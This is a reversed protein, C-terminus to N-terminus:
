VFVPFAGAWRVMWSMPVGSQLSGRARTFLEHSRPHEAVFRREEEALRTRLRARDIVAVTAAGSV